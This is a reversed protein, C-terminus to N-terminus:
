VVFGSEDAQSAQLSRTDFYLDELTTEQLVQQVQRTVRQWMSKMVWDEAPPQSGKGELVFYPLDLREGVATLIEAIPIQRATRNLCYGGQIGRQSRVLGAQRLEILLKELYPAPIQQRQAIVRVSALQDGELLALDLMAKLSYYGRTTLKM